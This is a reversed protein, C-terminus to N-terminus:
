LGIKIAIVIKGDEIDDYECGSIDYEATLFLSVPLLPSVCVFSEKDIMEWFMQFYM